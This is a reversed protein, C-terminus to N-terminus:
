YANKHFMVALTGFLIRLDSRLSWTTVYELDSQLRMSLDAEIETAGRYGRVQALGTLGPKVVHRQWYRTDIDWYLSSGARAALAHPRPGVLSMDGTLVNIIQPLEDISTKRLINGFRTVRSDNRSTLRSAHIDCQDAHMTRFKWIMFPRNGLGIREQKFFVPGRSDVKIILGVAIFIPILLPAAVLTVVLDFTRKMLRQNWALRGSNLVLSTHGSRESIGLPFLKDIEPVVIESHTDLTKLASAWAERAEPACHVVVRDMGKALMGLRNVAVASSLDPHLGMARAEVAGVGSKGGIAVGDYICLIAYLGRRVRHEIAARTAYRVAVLCVISIVVGLIFVGRSFEAGVRLLYVILLLCGAAAILSSTAAAVGSWVHVIKRTNHANNTLSFVFFLPVCVAVMNLAHVGIENGLYLFSAGYFGAIISAIDAFLSWLSLIGRFGRLGKLKNLDYLVKPNPVFDESVPTLIVPVAGSNPRIMRM